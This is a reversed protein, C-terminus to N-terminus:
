GHTEGRQSADFTVEFRKDEDIAALDEASLGVACANCRKYTKKSTPGGCDACTGRAHERRHGRWYAARCERSCMPLTTAATSRAQTYEDGCHTCALRVRKAAYACSKSCYKADRASQFSGRCHQCTRKNAERRAAHACTQSCFRRTQSPYYPFQQSCQPCTRAPAPQDLTRYVVIESRAHDAPLGRALRGSVETVQSDDAWAVGTLGDLVLKLMNDVDRRQRTGCFFAAFVGFNASPDPGGKAVARFQWGINEEAERTQRPTYPKGGRPNMRPRSKSQPEGNVTFYAVVTPDQLERHLAVVLPGDPGLRESLESLLTM